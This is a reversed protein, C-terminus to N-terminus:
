PDTGLITAVDCLYQLLSSDAAMLLRSLVAHGQACGKPSGPSTNTAIIILLSSLVDNTTEHKMYRRFALGGLLTAKLELKPPGISRPHEPYGHCGHLNTLM